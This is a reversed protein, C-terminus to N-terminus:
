FPLQPVHDPDLKIDILVPQSRNGIAEIATAVDNRHRITVGKGGLAEAIPGFDPWNLMSLSPDLDRNRFQIHEAGYGNDNCVIVVLDIRERVATFFETMGGLMFGGDGSILVTPRNGAGVAAGIAEAMGTGIAAFGVPSVFDQPQLVPFLKWAEGLFRGGDTAVIRDSPLADNLALLTERLDVFGEPVSRSHYPTPRWEALAQELEPTRFGSPAIEATDLWEIILNAMLAPDGALGADPRVSRGIEEREADIQVLRKGRLLSNHATTFRNLSAGFSIICDARSIADSAPDTSLTGFIGINFPQGAFLDRAQLTTALPAGIRDALAILADRHESAIAGRGALVIPARAAAIIGIANDLETGAPTVMPTTSVYEDVPELTCERDLFDAPMNFVVPKRNLRALRFALALDEGVTDPSRLQVFDAGSDRVLERQEINQLHARAVVATDGAILVAPIHARDGHVLATIVNTLGPGHTVTAVGVHGTARAYGLAMLVAGVEHAAAVYRGAHVRTYTEVMHLNADGLLGFLTEVGRRRLESAVAEFVKM